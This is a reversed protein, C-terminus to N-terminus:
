LLTESLIAAGIFGADNGLVAKKMEFDSASPNIRKRVQSEVIQIFKRGAEGVGGGIVIVEPNLLNVASAIATGLYVSVEEVVQTALRDGKKFAEFILKNSLNKLDGKVWNFLISRKGKRLYSKTREGIAPAAAYAEVCGINGCRCRRGDFKISTHGFEAGAYKSGRFIKGDLIIGGGIGTGITLFLCNEFGKAAGFKHEALGMLNADNDVYIPASFEKKLEEKINVNKLQPLNPIMGMIKGTKVDVTGPCGLGISEIKIRKKEAYEILRNLSKKINSIIVEKGLSTQTPVVIKSVVKGSSTQVIGSKINTGGLDVGISYIKIKL